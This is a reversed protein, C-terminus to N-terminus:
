RKKFLILISNLCPGNENYCNHRTEANEGNVLNIILEFNLILFKLLHFNSVSVYLQLVYDIEGM